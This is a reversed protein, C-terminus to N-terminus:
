LRNFKILNKFYPKNKNYTGFVSLNKQTLLYKFISSGIMGSAGLILIKDKNM